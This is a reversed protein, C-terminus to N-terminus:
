SPKEEDAPGATEPEAPASEAVPSAAPAAVPSAAPAMRVDPLVGPEPGALLGRIAALPLVASEIALVSAHTSAAARGVLKALALLDPGAVVVALAGAGDYTERDVTAAAPDGALAAVFREAEDTSAAVVVRLRAGGPGAHALSAPLHTYFGQTLVGLQDALRTADRVSSTTVVVSAGEAARKRLAEIVRAPASPELGALPEDVLLVPAKSTLAVALAVGRMETETLLRVRRDALGELGLVALRSTAPQRPEGRLEGALACLEDVRLAEPLTPARPVYAIQPRVRAPAQGLVHAHGSRAPLVGALLDLLVTTGDAPTGLVALVGHDWTLTVGKIQLPTKFWSRRTRASAQALTLVGSALESVAAAM